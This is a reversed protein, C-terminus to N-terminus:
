KGGNEKAAAQAESAKKKLLKTNPALMMQSSKGLMKAPSDIIAIEGVAQVIRDMLAQGIDQHSMERGRYAVLIKVKDGRQLFELTHKLKINFDNDDIGLHFKMEKIKQQVQNKKAERQRKEEQYQYKGFDMIRVVPPDVKDAMLVLDLGVHSAKVLADEFSFM